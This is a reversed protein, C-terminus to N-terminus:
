EHIKVKDYLTALNLKDIDRTMRPVAYYNAAFSGTLMYPIANKELKSCVEKLVDLENLMAPFDM